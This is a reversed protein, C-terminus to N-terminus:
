NVEFFDSYAAMIQDIIDIIAEQEDKNRSYLLAVTYRDLAMSLMEKDNMTRGKIANHTIAANM